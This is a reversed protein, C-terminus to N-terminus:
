KVEIEVRRNKARNRSIPQSDGYGSTIIRNQSVGRDALARAVTAARQESLQQNMKKSEEHSYGAFRQNDTHGSIEVRSTQLNILAAALAELQRETGSSLTAKGTDFQFNRFTVAPKVRGMKFGCASILGSIKERRAVDFLLLLSEKNMIQGAETVTYRNDTLLYKIRKRSKETQCDQLHAELSLPFQGQRYYKEGLEYWDPSTESSPSENSTPIVTTTKEPKPSEVQPETVCAQFFILTFLIIYRLYYRLLDKFKFSLSCLHLALVNKGSPM